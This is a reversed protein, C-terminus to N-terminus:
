FASRFRWCRTPASEAIRPPRLLVGSSLHLCILLIFYLIILIFYLVILIFCLILILILILLLFFRIEDLSEGEIAVADIPVSQLPIACLMTYLFRLAARTKKSDNADIALLTMELISPLHCHVM